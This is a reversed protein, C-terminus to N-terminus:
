LAWAATAASLRSTTPDIHRLRRVVLLLKLRHQILNGFQGVFPALKAIQEGVVPIEALGIHIGAGGGPDLRHDRHPTFRMMGRQSLTESFSRRRRLIWRREFRHAMPELRFVALLSVGQALLRGFRDEPDDLRHKTGGTGAARIPCPARRM